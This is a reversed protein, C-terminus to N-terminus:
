DDLSTRGSIYVNHHSVSCSFSIDHCCGCKTCDIVDFLCSHAKGPEYNFSNMIRDPLHCFPKYSQMDLPWFVKPLRKQEVVFKKEAPSGAYNKYPEQGSMREDLFKRLEDEVRDDMPRPLSLHFEGARCIRVKKQPAQYKTPVEEIRRLVEDGHLMHGFAVYHTDMWPTKELTILFQTTNDKHRGSNCMSLIGRKDHSVAFNECPMKKPELRHGGCQIWCGKVIRHIPTGSYGGKTTRCRKVFMRCTKPVLEDYLVFVMTGLIENEVRVMLYICSRGNEMLETIHSKLEDRGAKYFDRTLPLIYRMAVFKSLSNNDGIYNENCYVAVPNKLGWMQGGRMRQENELFEIWDVNLMGRIEPPDYIEPYCRHLTQVIYKCKQFEPTVMLGVVTFTGIKYESTTDQPSARSKEDTKDIPFHEM